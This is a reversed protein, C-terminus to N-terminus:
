QAFADLLADECLNVQTSKHKNKARKKVSNKKQPPHAIFFQKMVNEVAELRVTRLNDSFSTSHLRPNTIIEYSPFYDIFPKQCWTGAISRLVSKSYSNAPLIHQGSATATLPVPSVTLIIKFPKTRIRRMTRLFLKFDKNISQWGANRFEYKGEDFEGAIAGPATPYVTGSEKHVWMETLGLTFVLIDLSKFLHLVRSAHYARNDIVENASEFGDPEISPRLADYFRDDKSWIYDKPRFDGVAEMALQLLQRVTYINGYRASYTSYGFKKRQDTPLGPPPPEVDLINFRNARLHTTIHQAFCSGATAIKSKSEIAFKKSYLGELLYPNENAVGTRWFANGPLSTYPNKPMLEQKSDCTM